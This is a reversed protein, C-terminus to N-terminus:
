LGGEFKSHQEVFKKFNNVVGFADKLLDQQLQSLSDTKIANDLPLDLTKQELMGQLRLTNLFNLTEGLEVGFREDFV